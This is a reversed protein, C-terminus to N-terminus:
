AFGIQRTQHSFREAQCAKRIADMDQTNSGNLIADVIHKRAINEIQGGSFDYTKALEKCQTEDLDSISSQWIHWSEEPTPKPFEIKYLFRREFASDLNYM